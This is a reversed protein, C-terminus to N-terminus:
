GARGEDEDLMAAQLAVVKAIVREGGPGCAALDDMLSRVIKFHAALFVRNIAFSHEQGEHDIWTASLSADRAFAKLSQRWVVQDTLVKNLLFARDQIFADLDDIDQGTEDHERGKSM